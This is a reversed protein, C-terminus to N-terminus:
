QLDGAPFDLVPGGDPQGGLKWNVKQWFTLKQAWRGVAERLKRVAPHAEDRADDLSQVGGALNGEAILAAAFNAKFVTPAEQRLFLGGPALVLRRFVDLAVKANGMRLQCVGAANALWPSDLKPAVVADLAASPNGEALLREAKALVAAVEPTLDGAQTTPAAPTPNITQTM